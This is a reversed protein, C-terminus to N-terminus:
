FSWRLGARLFPGQADNGIEQEANLELRIDQVLEQEYGVSVRAGTFDTSAFILSQTSSFVTVNADTTGLDRRLVGSLQGSLIGGNGFLKEAEVGLQVEIVETATIM